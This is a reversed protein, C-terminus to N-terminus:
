VPEERVAQHLDIGTALFVTQRINKGFEGALMEMGDQPMASHHRFALPFLVANFVLTANVMDESDFVDLLSEPADAQMNLTLDALASLTRKLGATGEISDMIDM